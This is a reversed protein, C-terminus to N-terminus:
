MVGIAPAIENVGGVRCTGQPAPRSDGYGLLIMGGITVISSAVIVLRHGLRRTLPATLPLIAINALAGAMLAMGIQGVDLGAAKAAIIPLLVWHVGIRISAL